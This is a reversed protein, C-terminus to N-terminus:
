AGPRCVAEVLVLLGGAFCISVVAVVAIFPLLLM